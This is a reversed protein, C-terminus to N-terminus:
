RAERCVEYGTLIAVRLAEGHSAPVRIRVGNPLEVEAWASRFAANRDDGASGVKVPLFPLSQITKTPEGGSPPTRKAAPRGQGLRKRWQYFSPESVGEQQCFEKVTLSCDRFSALRERWVAETSPSPKRGM